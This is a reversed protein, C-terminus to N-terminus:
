GKSSRRRSLTVLVLSAGLALLLIGALPLRLDLGGTAALVADTSTNVPPSPPPSSPPSSPPSPPPSESSGECSFSQSKATTGTINPVTSSLVEVRLTNFNHGQLVASIGTFCGNYTTQGAVLTITQRLGTDVFDKESPTHATLMLTITGPAPDTVTVQFCAKDGSSCQATISTISPTTAHVPAAGLVALAIAAL